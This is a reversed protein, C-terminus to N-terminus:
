RGGAAEELARAALRARESEERRLESAIRAVTRDSVGERRIWLVAKATAEQLQWEPTGPAPGAPQPAPPAAPEEPAAVPEDVAAPADPAVSPEAAPAPPVFPESPRPPPGLRQEIDAWSEKGLDVAPILGPAAAAPPMAEELVARAQDQQETPLEAYDPDRLLAAGRAAVTGRKAAIPTMEFGGRERVRRKAAARAERREASQKRKTPATPKFAAMEERVADNFAAREAAREVRAKMPPVGNEREWELAFRSLKLKSHSISPVRGTVPHVKCTIAHIHEQNGDTHEVLITMHEDLGLVRLMGMAAAIKRERSIGSGYPWAILWHSYANKLKRGRASGGSRLKLITQDAVRGQMIRLTLAPDDTPSGLTEVWAVRESTEARRKGAPPSDHTLYEFLGAGGRGESILRVIM